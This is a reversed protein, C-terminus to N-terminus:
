MKAILKSNKRLGEACQLIWATCEEHMSGLRWENIASIPIFVNSLEGHNIGRWWHLFRMSAGEAQVCLHAFPESLCPSGTRSSGWHLSLNTPPWLHKLPNPNSSCLKILMASFFRARVDAYPNRPFSFFHVFHFTIQVCAYLSKPSSIFVHHHIVASLYDLHTEKQQHGFCALDDKNGM